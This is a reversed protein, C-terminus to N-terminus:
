PWTWTVLSGGITGLLLHDPDQPDVELVTPIRFGLGARLATWTVGGDASYLVADLDNGVGRRVAYIAGPAAVLDSFFGNDSPVATVQQWSAGADTSRYVAWQTAVWLVAPNEPDLALAKIDHNPLGTDRRQWTRGGDTSGFLRAMFQPPRGDVVAMGAAFIVDPKRPSVEVASFVLYERGLDIPRWTVGRDTSHFLGTASAAWLSGPAGGVALDNASAFGQPPAQGVKRWTEGRDDSRLLPGNFGVTVYVTSPLSPDVVIQGINEIDPPLELLAWSAGGDTSKALGSPGTTAYITRSDSPDVEVAQVTVATLDSQSPEWTAGGDLSRFVGEVEAGSSTGAYVAGPGAAIGLVVGRPPGELAAQWTAGGDASRFIGSAGSGAYARGDRQFALAFVIEEPTGATSQWSRGRDSSRYIGESTGALLTGSGAPDLALAYVSLSEPLGTGAPTWTVGQDDSRFIGHEVLGAYVTGARPDVALAPAWSGQPLGSRHQKWTAGGNISRYVGRQTGAYLVRPRRPDIALTLGGVQEFPRGQPSTVKWTRGADTSRYVGTEEVMVYLTSSRQPDFVIASIDGIALGRGTLFWTDGGDTSKYLGSYLTGAYVVNPRAPDVALSHVSGGDPGLPTWAGVGAWAPFAPVLLALAILLVLSTTRTM